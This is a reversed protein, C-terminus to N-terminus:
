IERENYVVVDQYANDLCAQVDWMTSFDSYFTEGSDQITIEYGHTGYSSEGVIDHFDCLNEANIWPVNFKKADESDWHATPVQKYVDIVFVVNHDNKFVEQKALQIIDGSFGIAM